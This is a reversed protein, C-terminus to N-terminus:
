DMSAARGAMREREAEFIRSNNLAPSPRESMRGNQTPSGSSGVGSNM